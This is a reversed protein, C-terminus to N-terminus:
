NWRHQGGWLLWVRYLLLQYTFHPSATENKSRTREFRRLYRFSTRGRDFCVVLIDAARRDRGRRPPTRSSVNEGRQPGYESAEVYQDQTQTLRGCTSTCSECHAM